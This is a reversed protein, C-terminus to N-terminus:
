WHHSPVIRYCRYSVTVIESRLGREYPACHDLQMRGLYKKEYQLFLTSSWANTSRTIRQWKICGPTTDGATRLGTWSMRLRRDASRPKEQLSCRCPMGQRIFRVARLMQRSGAQPFARCPPPQLITQGAASLCYTRLDLKPARLSQHGRGLPSTGGLPLATSRTAVM